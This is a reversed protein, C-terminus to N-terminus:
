SLFSRLQTGGLGPDPGLLSESFCFLLLFFLQLFLLGARVIPRGVNTLPKCDTFLLSLWPIGDLLFLVLEMDEDFEPDDDHPEEPADGAVEGGWSLLIGGLCILM